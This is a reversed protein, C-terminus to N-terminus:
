PGPTAVRIKGSVARARRDKNWIWALRAPNVLRRWGFRWRIESRWLLVIANTGVPGWGNLNMGGATGVGPSAWAETIFPLTAAKIDALARDYRKALWSCEAALEASDLVVHEQLAHMREVLACTITPDDSPRRRVRYPYETWSTLNVVMAAYREARTKRRAASATFYATLVVVLIAAVAAVIGTTGMTELWTQHATTTTNM